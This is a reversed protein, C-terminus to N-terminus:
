PFQRTPCHRVHLALVPPRDVELLRRPQDVRELAIQRLHLAALAVEVVQTGVHLLQPNGQCRSLRQFLHLATQGAKSTRTSITAKGAAERLLRRAEM